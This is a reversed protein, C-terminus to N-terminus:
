QLGIAKLVFARESMTNGDTLGCARKQKADIIYRLSALREGTRQDTVAVDYRVTGQDIEAKRLEEEPSIEYHVLVDATLAPVSYYNGTQPFRIYPGDPGQAPRGELNSRKREIFEISKPHPHNSRGFSTVRTGYKVEFQNFPPASKTNWDYAISRVQSAPLKIFKTGTTKCESLFSESDPVVLSLGYKGIQFVQLVVTVLFMPLVLVFASQPGKGTKVKKILYFIVCGYAVILLAAVIYTSQPGGVMAFVLGMYSFMLGLIAAVTYALLTM